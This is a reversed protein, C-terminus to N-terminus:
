VQAQGGQRGAQDPQARGGQPDRVQRTHVPSDGRDHEGDSCLKMENSKVSVQSQIVQNMRTNFDSQQPRGRNTKIQRQITTNTQTQIKCFRIPPTMRQICHSITGHVWIIVMRCFMYYCINYESCFVIFVQKFFLSYSLDNAFKQGRQETTFQLKKQIINCITKVLVQTATCFGCVEFLVFYQLRWM